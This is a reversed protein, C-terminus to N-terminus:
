PLSSRCFITQVLVDDNWLANERIAFSLGFGGQGLGQGAWRSCVCSGGYTLSAM